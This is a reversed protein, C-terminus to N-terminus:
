SRCNKTVTWNRKTSMHVGLRWSPLVWGAQILLKTVTSSM